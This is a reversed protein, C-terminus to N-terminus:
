DIASKQSPSDDFIGTLGAARKLGLFGLFACVFWIAALKWEHFIAYGTCFLISYTMAIASIWALLLEGINGKSKMGASSEDASNVAGWWGEPRVRNYFVSLVKHDVPKTLFTVSIWVITTFGVTILMTGNNRRFVDGYIDELWFVGVSYALFPALTAAIESWANIRWWYWRLILVMGLGAGCNILFSAASDITKIQTTAYFACIMILVTFLRAIKIYHAQALSDNAFSGEKRIFRKYLDNTLYSAGWNLQTSITSMYAGLFAALLLGRLGTPLYDQMVMVFGKGADDVPLDPYLVLACLGVIIWPWPRLCYHAIQFFLTAFIAQKEDKASMMRQSIYGGGGPEAGPYWSAWWQVAVYSFFAGASLSFAAITEGVSGNFNLNPFFDFRWPQDSLHAKLGAMGGIDDSQLVIISLVICGIMAITFQIVDTIVVGMLGSLSSYFAVLVMLGGVYWLATSTPIDFFVELIKIMAANVWGIVVANLFVGMYVSKFGRLFAAEVGSYRLELFELETLIEARRWLRSFFFTTLMGGILMNWWMWNGSIGHQAIKETVWLPTDAAFTTAVMSIGAIYWPLNRGGLFFDTLSKGAANRYKLGIILSILLFAAIIAWDIPHLAM